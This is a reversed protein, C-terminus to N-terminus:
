MSFAVVMCDPSFGYKEVFYRGIRGVVRHSQVPRGLKEGLGAASVDLARKDWEKTRINLLNMGSGDSLDIPVYRCAFLSAMFSSVLCIRETSAYADKKIKAIRAIQNGSFREYARSGTLNAVAQPGGLATELARCEATTSSDMWVPSDQVSFCGLLQNALPERTKLGALVKETGPKLYVTGHQQGSGSVAFIKEFPVGAERMRKLLTELAKVWMAPPSTVTLGDRQKHVGGKTGFEPLDSDFSVSVDSVIRRKENLLVAKLSQTSSDIGLFLKDSM